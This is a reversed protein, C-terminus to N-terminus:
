EGEESESNSMNSQAIAAPHDERVHVPLICDVGCTNTIQSAGGEGESIKPRLNSKQPSISLRASLLTELPVAEHSTLVQDLVENGSPSSGSLNAPQLTKASGVSTNMESIPSSQAVIQSSELACTGDVEVELPLSAHDQTCPLTAISDSSMNSEDEQEITRSLQLVRTQLLPTDCQLTDEITTSASDVDSVDATTVTSAAPVDDNPVGTVATDEETRSM